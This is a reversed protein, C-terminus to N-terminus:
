ETPASEPPGVNEPEPEAEPQVQMAEPWEGRETKARLISAIEKLHATLLEHTSYHEIGKLKKFAAYKAIGGPREADWLEADKGCWQIGAAHFAGEAKAREAANTGERNIKGGDLRPLFEPPLEPKGAPRGREDLKVWQSPVRYLYRGIGLQVATRKMSDSLGGKIAEVQTNEAGDWKTVWEAVGNPQVIRVSLGCLVGGQPGPRYLNQWGGTGFCEDLREQVGRNSVYPALLQSTPNQKPHSAIPKWKIRDAPFPAELQARLAEMDTPTEGLWHHGALRKALGPLAPLLAEAVAPAQALLQESLEQWADAEPTEPTEAPPPAPKRAPAKKAATGSSKSTAM